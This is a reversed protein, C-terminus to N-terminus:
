LKNNEKIKNIKFRIPENCTNNKLRQPIRIGKMQHPDWYIQNAKLIRKHQDKQHNIFVM